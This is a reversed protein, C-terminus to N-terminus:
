IVRTITLSRMMRASAKPVIRSMRVGILLFYAAITSGVVFGGVVFRKRRLMRVVGIVTSRTAGIVFFIVLVPGRIMGELM